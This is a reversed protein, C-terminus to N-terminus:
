FLGEFWKAANDFAQQVDHAAQPIDITTHESIKGGLGLALGGTMSLSLKGDNYNAGLDASAGLGAQAEVHTKSDLPGLGIDGDLSGKAGIFANAGLDAGNRTLGGHLGGDAGLDGEARGGLHLPGFDKSGEAWGKALYGDGNLDGSLGNHDAQWKATGDYGLVGWGTPDKSSDDHKGSGWVKDESHHQSGAIPPGDDAAGPKKKGGKGKDGKDDDDKDHKGGGTIIPPATKLPADLAMTTGSAQDYYGFMAETTRTNLRSYDAASRAMGIVDRRAQATLMNQRVQRFEDPTPTAQRTSDLHDASQDFAAALTETDDAVQHLWAGHRVTNAGARQY